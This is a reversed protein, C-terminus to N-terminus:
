GAAQRAALKRNRLYLMLDTFVMVFNLAYLAIVFNRDHLVKHVIGSAYGVLIVILFISSKGATQRSRWSRYISFPWAAGFCVLMLIEFISMSM